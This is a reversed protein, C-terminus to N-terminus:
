RVISMQKRTLSERDKKSWFRSNWIPYAPDEVVWYVHSPWDAGLRYKSVDIKFRSVRNNKLNDPAPHIVRDRLSLSVIRRENVPFAFTFVADYRPSFYLNRDAEFFDLGRFPLNFPTIDIVLWQGDAHARYQEIGLDPETTPSDVFTEPQPVRVICGCLLIFSPIVLWLLPKM